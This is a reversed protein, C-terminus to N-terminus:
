STSEVPPVTTQLYRRRGLDPKLWQILAPFFLLDSLMAVTIAVAGAIGPKALGLYDSFGMAGFGLGLIVSTLIVAQGVERLTARTAIAVDGHEYWSNRYHTIFHITDDVAIGIIIPAIILMDANLPINFFGMIGFTFIAPLLNPVMSILGAQRSGLTIVMGITIVLLAFGFSKLQTWSIHEVLEMMMLFVGTINTEARPYNPELPSFIRDIDTKVDSFFATYEYSGGNRLMVSIHSQSYDDSVLKRRDEPNANNFLYLLQATLRPDDPIVDFAERGQNMVKNTDKVTDALSVTKVVKDPYSGAIHQQFAEIRKLVGPDKLADPQKFDLFVELSLAGMLKQDVLDTTVRVPSGERYVDAFNSNIKVQFAGYLLLFFGALYVIVITKSHRATLSALAALGAQIDFCRLPRREAAARAATQDSFPHWIDLLLPFLLMVFLLAYGVAMASVLGFVTIAPMDSVTLSLMGAMTTLITLFIALGTKGYARTLASAHDDGEKRFLTYASLIHVCSAIGVAITLMVTLLMISTYSLGIWAGTGLAGLVAIPVLMLPWVVASFSKFIVRIAIVIVGLMVVLYTGAEATSHLQTDMNVPNGSFKFEFDRFEPQRTIDRVAQVFLSYDEISEKVFEIPEDVHTDVSVDTSDSEISFEDAILLNDDSFLVEALDNDVPIAGFDTTLQIVGYQFDESFFTKKFTKQSLAIARRRERNQRDQPFDSGILKRSILTDGDAVQYRANYLSDIRSLRALPNERDPSSPKLSAADITRHLAELTRLASESFVDGSEPRYIIFVVEDSGFQARFKDREAIIPSDEDFWVEASLDVSFRNAIGTVMFVVFAVVLLSIILRWRRTFDPVASFYSNLSLLFSLM